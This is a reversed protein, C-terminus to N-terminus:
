EPILVLLEAQCQLTSLLSGALTFSLPLSIGDVARGFWTERECNSWCCSRTQPPVDTSRSVKVLLPVRPRWLGVTAQTWSHEERSHTRPYRTGRGPVKPKGLHSPILLGLLTPFLTVCLTLHHQLCLNWVPGCPQPQANRPAAVSAPHSLLPCKDQLITCLPVAPLFSRSHECKFFPHTLM